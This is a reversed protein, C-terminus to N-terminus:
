LAGQQRLAFRGRDYLDRSEASPEHSKPRALATPGGASRGSLGEPRNFRPIYSGVPLEIRVYSGAGEAAYYVALKRRLRNAAVRVSPDQHPDFRSPNRRFCELALNFERLRSTDGALTSHVLFSLLRKLLHARRFPESSTIRALETLVLTSPLEFDFAVEPM